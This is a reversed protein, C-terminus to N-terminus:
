FIQGSTQSTPSFLAPFKTKALNIAESKYRARPSFEVGGGYYPKLPIRVVLVTLSRTQQLVCLSLLIM